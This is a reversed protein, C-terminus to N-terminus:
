VIGNHKSMIHLSLFFKLISIRVVMSKKREKEFTKSDRNVRFSMQRSVSEFKPQEREVSDGDSTSPMALDVRMDFRGCFQAISGLIYIINIVLRM